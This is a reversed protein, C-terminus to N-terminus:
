RLAVHMPVCLIAEIERRAQEYISDDGYLSLRRGAIASASELALLPRCRTSWDSSLNHHTSIWDMVVTLCRRECHRVFNWVQKKFSTDTSPNVAMKRVAWYVQMNDCLLRMGSNRADAFTIYENIAQLEKTAIPRVDNDAFTGMLYTSRHDHVGWAASSADSTLRIWNGSSESAKWIYPLNDACTLKKKWWAISKRVEYNLPHDRRFAATRLKLPMWRLAVIPLSYLLAFNSYYSLWCMMGALIELKKHDMSGCSDDLEELLKRMKLTKDEPLRMGAIFKRGCQILLGLVQGRMKSALKKKASMKGGVWETAAELTNYVIRGFRLNASLSFNDDLYNAICARGFRAVDKSFEAALSPKETFFKAGLIIKTVHVILSTYQQFKLCSRASGFSFSTYRMFM